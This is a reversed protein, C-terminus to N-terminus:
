RVEEVFGNYYDHYEATVMDWYPDYELTRRDPISFKEKIYRAFHQSIKTAGLLNVHNADSFDRSEDLGTAKRMDETNYDVFLVDQINTWEQMAVHKKISWRENQSTPTSVVIVEIDNNRCIEIMKLMYEDGELSFEDSRNIDWFDSPMIREECVLWTRAGLTQNREFRFKVAYDNKTIDQRDHYRLLPFLYDVFKQRKSHALIDLISDIKNKSWRMNNIGQRLLTEEAVEDFKVEGFLWVGPIIVLKPSQYKLAENLWYYQVASISSVASTGFNYSSIGTREWLVSPLFSAETGSGGFFLVDISNKPENYFQVFTKTYPSLGTFDKPIFVHQMCVFLVAFIICFVIFRMGNKMQM